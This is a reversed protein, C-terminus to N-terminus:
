VDVITRSTRVRRAIPLNSHSISNTIREAHAMPIVATRTNRNRNRNSLSDRSEELADFYGEIMKLQQNNITRVISCRNSGCCGIKRFEQMIPEHLLKLMSATPFTFCIYGISNFINFLLRRNSCCCIGTVLKMLLLWPYGIFFLIAQFLCIVLSFLGAFFSTPTLCFRECLSYKDEEDDITSRLEDWEDGYDDGCRRCNASCCLPDYFYRFKFAINRCIPLQKFYVPWQIGFFALFFLVLLVVQVAPTSGSTNRCESESHTSDWSSAIAFIKLVDIFAVKCTTKWNKYPQVCVNLTLFLIVLVLTYWYTWQPRTPCGNDDEKIAVVIPILIIM